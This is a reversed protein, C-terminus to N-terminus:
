LVITTAPPSIERTALLAGWGFAHPMKGIGLGSAKSPLEHIQPVSGLQASPPPLPAGYVAVLV